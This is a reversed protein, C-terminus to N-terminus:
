IAGKFEVDVIFLGRKSAQMFLTARNEKGGHKHDSNVTYRM